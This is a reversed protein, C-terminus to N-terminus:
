NNTWNKPTKAVVSCNKIKISPISQASHTYLLSNYCEQFTNMIIIIQKDKYLQQLIGQVKKKSTRNQIM